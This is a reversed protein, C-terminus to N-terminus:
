GHETGGGVFFPFKKNCTLAKLCMLMWLMIKKTALFSKTHLFINMSYGM